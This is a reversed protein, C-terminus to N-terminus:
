DLIYSFNVTQEENTPKTLRYFDIAYDDVLDAQVFVEEFGKQKCYENTFKILSKGIGKRQHETLVALDYIYALPKDSYYQELVYFTLGAIVTNEAKVIVAFFNEQNLLKQLHTDTPREFNKMEFVKEFVSVLEKFSDIDNHQLIKIETTLNM